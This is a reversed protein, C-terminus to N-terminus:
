PRESSCAPKPRVFDNLIAVFRIEVDGGHKMRAIEALAFLHRIATLTAARTFMELSRMIVAPWTPTTVQPLPRLQNSFVVWFRVTPVPLHPYLKTWVALPTEEERRAGGYLINGTVGGDVYISGDIERFPFVGPVGASALLIRYIRDIDGNEVAREAESGVDWVWSGGDDLDATNVLLSRGERSADTMRRLMAMDLNARVKREMGPM